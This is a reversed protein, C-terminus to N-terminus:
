RRRADFYSRIITCIRFMSDKEGDPPQYAFIERQKDEPLQKPVVFVGGTLPPPPKKIVNYKEAVGLIFKLSAMSKETISKRLHQRVVAEFASVPRSKGDRVIRVPEELTRRIDIQHDSNTKPRRPRGKLVPPPCAPPEDRDSM